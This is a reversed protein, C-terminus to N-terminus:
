TKKFIIEIIAWNVGFKLNKSVEIREKQSYPDQTTHGKVRPRVPRLTSARGGGGRLTKRLNKRSSLVDAGSTKLLQENMGQASKSVLETITM